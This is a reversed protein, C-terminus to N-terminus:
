VLGSAALETEVRHASSHHGSGYIYVVALAKLFVRTATPVIMRTRHRPRGETYNLFLEAHRVSGKMTRSFCYEALEEARTL